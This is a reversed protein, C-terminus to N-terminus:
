RCLEEALQLGERGGYKRLGDIVLSLNEETIELAPDYHWFCRAYYSRFLEQARGAARDRRGREREAYDSLVQQMLTQYRPGQSRFWALLKPDLRISITKKKNM